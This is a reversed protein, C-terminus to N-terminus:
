DLIALLTLSGFIVQAKGIEQLILDIDDSTYTLEDTMLSYRHYSGHSIKAIDRLIRNVEESQTDYAVCHFPLDRGLLLQKVFYLLM